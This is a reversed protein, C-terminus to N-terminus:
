TPFKAPSIIARWTKENAGLAHQVTYDVWYDAPFKTMALLATAAEMNDFFSLGRAAETRVRPHEDKSPLSSCQRLTPLRNVNMPCFGFRPLELM